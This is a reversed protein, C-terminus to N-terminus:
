FHKGIIRPPDLLERFDDEEETSTYVESVRRHARRLEAQLADKGRLERCM